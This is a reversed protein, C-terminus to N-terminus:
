IAKAIIFMNDDIIIQSGARTLLKNHNILTQGRKIQWRSLRPFLNTLPKYGKLILTRLLIVRGFQTLYNRYEKPKNIDVTHLGGVHLPQFGSKELLQILTQRTFYTLHAVPHIYRWNAGYYQALRNGIDHTGLTIIGGPRLLRHMEALLHAPDPHHEVVDFATACDLSHTPIAMDEIEGEFVTLGHKERSYNVFYPAVEQGTVSFGAQRAEVLFSGVGCGVDLLKGSPVYKQIIQLFRQWTPRQLDASEIFWDQVYQADVPNAFSYFLELSRPGPRPNTYILDCQQCKVIDWHNQGYRDWEDQRVPINSYLPRTNNQGCLNCFVKIIDLKM